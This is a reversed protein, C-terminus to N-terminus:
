SHLNATEGATEKKPAPVVRGTFAVYDPWLQRLREPLLRRQWREELAAEIPGVGPQGTEGHLHLWALAKDEPMAMAKEYYYRWHWAQQKQTM